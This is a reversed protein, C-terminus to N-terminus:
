GRVLIRKNPRNVIVDRVIAILISSKKGIHVKLKLVVVNIGYSQRLSKTCQLANVQHLVM